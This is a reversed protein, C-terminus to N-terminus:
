AAGIPRRASPKPRRARYAAINVTGDERKAHDAAEWTSRPTDRDVEHHVTITGGRAHERTRDFDRLIRAAGRAERTVRDVMAPEWRGAPQAPTLGDFDCAVVHAVYGFVPLYFANRPASFAPRSSAFREWALMQCVVRDGFRQAEQTLQGDVERYIRSRAEDAAHQRAQDTAVWGETRQEVYGIQALVRATSPPMSIPGSASLAADLYRKQAETM